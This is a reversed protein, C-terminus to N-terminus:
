TTIDNDLGSDDSLVPLPPTFTAIGVVSFSGYALTDRGDKMTFVTKLETQRSM